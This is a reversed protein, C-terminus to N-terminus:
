LDKSAIEIRNLAKQLAIEARRFDVEDRNAEIRREARSKAALARELDIDEPLEASEALIVVKSKHVEIFGGSVAVLEEADGNKARVVGIQLPTVLPIHNPLIGLEGDIAKVVVMDIEKEYVKREPTVIELLMNSM